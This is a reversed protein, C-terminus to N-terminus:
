KSFYYSLSFGTILCIVSVIGNIDFTIRSYLVPLTGITFGLIASYTIKEYNVILYTILKSLLVAGIIFGFIIFIMYFYTSFDQSFPNAVVSLFFNYMGVMMLLFSSSIGPIIKGISYLIGTIFLRIYSSINNDLMSQFNFFTGKKDLIFLMIGITLALIFTITNKTNVRTNEIKRFIIPLGGLIIGLFAFRTPVPHKTYFFLILKGITLIGVGMGFVISILFNLDNKLAYKLNSISRILRGYVGFSIALISGSVGPMIMGIGIIIGIFFTKIM